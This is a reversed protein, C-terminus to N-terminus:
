RGGFIVLNYLSERISERLTWARTRRALCQRTVALGLERLAEALCRHDESAYRRSLLTSYQPEDICIVDEGHTFTLRLGSWGVSQNQCLLLRVGNIEASYEGEEVARWPLPNKAGRTADLLYCVIYLDTVAM